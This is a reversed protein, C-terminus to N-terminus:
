RALAPEVAGDGPHQYVYSRNRGRQKAQYLASDAREYIDIAGLREDLDYTYLGMSITAQPGGDKSSHPDFIRACHLAFGSMLEKAIDLAQETRTAPLLLAFEDGGMRAVVARARRGHEALADVLVKLVADGAAHGYGDNLRKFRDVDVLLLTLPTRFRKALRLERKLAEDFVIRTSAGTLPDIRATRRSDFYMWSLSILGLMGLVLMTSVPPFWVAAFKFLLFSVLLALGASFLTVALPVLPRWDGHLAAKGVLLMPILLLGASLLFRATYGMSDIRRGSLLMDLANAQFGVGPLRDEDARWGPWILQDSLGSLDAGVLIRRGALVGDPVRGALVDVYSVRVFGDPPNAWSLLVRHDRVWKWPADPALGEPLRRVTPYDRGWPGDLQQLALALSPWRAQGLGAHLFMHRTVGDADSSQDVHGLGAAAAVLEPIPLLEVTLVSGGGTQAYVPLVTRGNDAIARALLADAGPDSTSPDVFLVNFGIAKVDLATLRDILEAHTRRSWPWSGLEAVSKQDIAVVVIEDSPPAAQRSVWQDYLWNDARWTGDLWVLAAAAGVVCALVLGTLLCRMASGTSM